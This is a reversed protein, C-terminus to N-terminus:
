AKRNRKAVEAARANAERAKRLNKQRASYEESMCQKPHGLRRNCLKGNRLVRNCREEIAGNNICTENVLHEFRTDGCHLKTGGDMPLVKIVDENEYSGPEMVRTLRIYEDFRRRALEIDEQTRVGDGDSGKHGVNGKSNGIGQRSLTGGGKRTM